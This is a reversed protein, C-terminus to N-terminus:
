VAKRVMWRMEDERGQQLDWLSKAQFALVSMLCHLRIQPMGRVYHRTLRKSEKLSKFIHEINWRRGYLEKFEKSNYPLTGFLRPNREPDELSEEDCSRLGGRKKKALPCGACKYLRQGTKRNTRVYTMPVKGTCVPVGEHTYTGDVLRNKPTRRTPIVPIIGKSRLYDHNKRSDYGKDASLSRPNFWPHQEQAHVIYQPLLPNEHEGAPRVFIAIPLGYKTDGILHLHYGFGLEAPDGIRQARNRFGLSADQDGHKGQPNNGNSTSPVYTADAGAEMGFDPKRKRIGGTTGALMKEVLGWRLTVNRVFRQLTARSPAKLWFGCWLRLEFDEELKEQLKNTSALNEQYSYFHARWLARLPYGTRGKGTRNEGLAELLEADDLNALQEAYKDLQSKPQTWLPSHSNNTRAM